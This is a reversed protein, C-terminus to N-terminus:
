INEQYYQSNFSRLLKAKNIAVIVYLKGGIKDMPFLWAELFEEASVIRLSELIWCHIGNFHKYLVM